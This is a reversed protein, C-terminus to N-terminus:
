FPVPRKKGRFGAASHRCGGAPTQASTTQRLARDDPRAPVMIPPSEPNSKRRLRSERGRRRRLQAGCRCARQLLPCSCRRYRRTQSRSRCVGRSDCARAQLRKRRLASGRRAPCCARGLSPRTRDACRRARPFAPNDDRGDRHSTCSGNVFESSFCVGACISSFGSFRVNLFLVEQRLIFYSRHSTKM